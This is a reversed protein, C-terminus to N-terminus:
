SFNHIEVEIENRWLLTLGNKRGISDVVFCGDFGLKRKMVVFNRLNIMIEIIFEIKPRKEGVM